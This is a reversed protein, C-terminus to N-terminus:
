PKNAPIVKVPPQVPTSSVVNHIEAENIAREQANFAYVANVDASLRYRSMSEGLTATATSMGKATAGYSIAADRTIGLTAGTAIADQNAALFVFQWNYKERQEKIKAFIQSRSYRQSANEHGDTMICIIVKGPREHEPLAALRRGVSDVMEGIADLLATSHNCVYTSTSLLPVDSLPLGDYLMTTSDHFLMLSARADGPVARQSAIFGNIGDITQDRIPAMSGSADLVIGIFTSNPNTM